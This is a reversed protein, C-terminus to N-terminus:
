TGLVCKSVFECKGSLGAHSRSTLDIHLVLFMFKEMSWFSMRNNLRVLFM